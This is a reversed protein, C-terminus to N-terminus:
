EYSDRLSLPTPSHVNNASDLVRSVIFKREIADIKFDTTTM